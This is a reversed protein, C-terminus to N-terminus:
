AKASGKARRRGGYAGFLAAGVLALSLPEPVQGGGPPTCGPDNSNVCTFNGALTRLKVYDNGETWGGGGLTNSYASVLWYGALLGGLGVVIEVTSM